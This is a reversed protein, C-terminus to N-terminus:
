DSAGPAAAYRYRLLRLESIRTRNGPPGVDVGTTKLGRRRRRPKSVSSSYRCYLFPLSCCAPLVPPSSPPFLVSLFFSLLRHPRSAVEEFICGRAAPARTRVFSSGGLNSGRRGPGSADTLELLRQRSLTCLQLSRLRESSPAYPSRAGDRQEVELKFSTM